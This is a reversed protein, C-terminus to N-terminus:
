FVRRLGAEFQVELPDGACGVDCRPACIEVAEGEGEGEGPQALVPGMALMLVATVCGRWFTGM